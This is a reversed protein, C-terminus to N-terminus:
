LDLASQGAGAAAREAAPRPRRSRLNPRVELVQVPGFVAALRALVVALDPDLHWSVAARGRRRAPSPPGLRAPPLHAPPHALGGAGTGPDAAQQGAVLLRPRSLPRRAM